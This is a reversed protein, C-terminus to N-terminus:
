ADDLLTAVVDAACPIETGTVIMASQVGILLDHRGKIMVLTTLLACLHAWQQSVVLRVMDNRDFLAPWGGAPPPTEYERGSGDPCSLPSLFDDHNVEHSAGPLGCHMCPQFTASM